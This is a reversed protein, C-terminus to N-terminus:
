LYKAMIDDVVGEKRLQDLAAQLKAVTEDPVDKNL